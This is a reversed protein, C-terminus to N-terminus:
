IPYQPEIGQQPAFALFLSLIDTKLKIKVMNLNLDQVAQYNM